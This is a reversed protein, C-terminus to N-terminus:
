SNVQIKNEQTLHSVTTQSSYTGKKEINSSSSQSLRSAEEVRSLIWKWEDQAKNWVDPPITFSAGVASLRQVIGKEDLSQVVKALIFPMVYYTIIVCNIDIDKIVLYAPWDTINQLIENWQYLSRERWPEQLKVTIEPLGIAAVPHPALQPREKFLRVISKFNYRVFSNHCKEYEELRESVMIDDFVYKIHVLLKFNMYGILNTQELFRIVDEVSQTDNELSDLLSQVGPPNRLTFTFYSSVCNKLRTVDVNVSAISTLLSDFQSKLREAEAGTAAIESDERTDGGRFVVAAFLFFYM